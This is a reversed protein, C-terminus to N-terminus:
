EGPTIEQCKHHDIFPEGAVEGKWGRWCRRCTWHSCFGDPNKRVPSPDYVCIESTPLFFLCKECVFWGPKM